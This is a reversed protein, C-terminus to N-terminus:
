REYPLTRTLEDIQGRLWRARGCAQEDGGVCAAAAQDYQRELKGLNEERRRIDQGRKQDAESQSTTVADVGSGVAGVGIKAAKVPLSVVDMATCGVLGLAALLAVAALSLKPM